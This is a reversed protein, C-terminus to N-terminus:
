WLLELRTVFGDFVLGNGDIKESGHFQNNQVSSIFEPTKVVNLWGSVMYGASARVHGNCSTWGLGLECELISVLRAEKWDTQAVTLGNTDSQLYNGQFEGGLFSASAKGYVFVNRCSGTREGELGLRIGGGDFNLNTDVNGTVFQNFQSTFQQELSAYRVGAVYNIKTLETGYFVHRYDVDVMNYRLFQHANADGWNGAADATSPHMVMSRVVLGPDNNVISDNAGNEYHTFTASITSCPGFETGFGIRFGPEFQPNVAATRGNQVPVQTPGVLNVPVAYEIGDNRPRLYLLEGFVLWRPDCSSGCGLEGCASPEASCPDSCPAQPPPQPADDAAWSASVLSLVAVTAAIALMVKRNVM